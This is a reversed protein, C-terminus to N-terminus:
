RKNVMLPSAFFSVSESFLIHWNWIKLNVVFEGGLTTSIGGLLVLM